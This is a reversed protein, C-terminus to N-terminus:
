SRRASRASSCAFRVGYDFQGAIASVQFAVLEDSKLGWGVWLASLQVPLSCRDDRSYPVSVPFAATFPGGASGLSAASFRKSNNSRRNTQFRLIEVETQLMKNSSVIKQSRRAPLLPDYRSREGGGRKGSNCNRANGCSGCRGRLTTHALTPHHAGGAWGRVGNPWLGQSWVPYRSTSKRAGGRGCAPSREKFHRGARALPACGRLWSWWACFVLHRQPATRPYPCAHM